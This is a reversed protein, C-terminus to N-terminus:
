STEARRRAVWALGLLAVMPLALAVFHANVYGYAGGIAGVAFAAIPGFFKMSRRRTTEDAGGRLLDVVDIVLQTVNGTMAATPALEPLVLRSVANQVGMALAALIGACMALSEDPSRIPLAMWGLLAFGGVLIFQLLLLESLPEQGERDLWLLLLRAIAVGVVFAPIVLLKLLVGGSSHALVVAILVFNGTVHATFLGFLAVFGVTDIYGAVFGLGVSLISGRRSDTKM